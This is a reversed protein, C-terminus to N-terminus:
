PIEPMVWTGTRDLGLTSAAEALQPLRGLDGCFLEPEGRWRVPLPWAGGRLGLNDMRARVEIPDDGADLLDRVLLDVGEFGASAALELTTGVPLELGIARANFSRFM